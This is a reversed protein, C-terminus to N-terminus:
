VPIQPPFAIGARRSLQAWIDWRQATDAGAWARIEAISRFCGQCHSGDDSMSCVSICPSPLAEDSKEDFYGAASLLYARAAIPKIANEADTKHITEM